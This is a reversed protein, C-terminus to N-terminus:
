RGNVNALRCFQSPSFQHQQKQQLRWDCFLSKTWTFVVNVVNGSFKLLNTSFDFPFEVNKDVDDDDDNDDFEDEPEDENGNVDNDDDDDNTDDVFDDTATTRNFRFVNLLLSLLLLLLEDVFIYENRQRVM